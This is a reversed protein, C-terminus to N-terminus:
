TLLLKNQSVIQSSYDIRIPFSPQTPTAQFRTELVTLSHIECQSEERVLYSLPCSSSSMQLGPAEEWGRYGVEGALDTLDDQFLM